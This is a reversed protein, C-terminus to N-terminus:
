RPGSNGASPNSALSVGRGGRGARRGQACDEPLSEARRGSRHRQLEKIIAVLRAAHQRKTILLAKLKEPDDPLGEVTQTM